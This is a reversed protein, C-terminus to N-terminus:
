RTRLLQGPVLAADGLHNLQQLKAVEARPDAQPAVREAISWLTDGSEVTVRVASSGAPAHSAAAPASLWAVGLLAACLVAVAASLVVVGRQTLRIPPAVARESPRHLQLITADPRDDREYWPRTGDGFDFAPELEFAVSM